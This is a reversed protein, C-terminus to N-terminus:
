IITALDTAGLNMRFWFVISLTSIRFIKFIKVKEDACLKKILTRKGSLNDGLILVRKNQISSNASSSKDELITSWLEDISVSM